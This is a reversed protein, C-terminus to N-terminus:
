VHLIEKCKGSSQSKRRSGRAAARRIVDKAVAGNKKCADRNMSFDTETVETDGARTAIGVPSAKKRNSEESYPTKSPPQWFRCPVKTMEAPRRSVDTVNKVDNRKYLSLKQISGIAKVKIELAKQEADLARRTEDQDRQNKLVQLDNMEGHTGDCPHDVGIDSSHVAGHYHLLSYVPFLVFRLSSANKLARGKRKLDWFLCM